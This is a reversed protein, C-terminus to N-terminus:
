WTLSTALNGASAAAAPFGSLSMQFSCEPLLAATAEREKFEGERLMLPGARSASLLSAIRWLISLDVSVCNDTKRARSNTSMNRCRFTINKSMKRTKMPERKRAPDCMLLIVILEYASSPVSLVIIRPTVVRANETRTNPCHCVTYQRSAAHPM